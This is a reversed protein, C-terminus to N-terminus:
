RILHIMSQKLIQNNCGEKKELIYYYVGEALRRGDSSDGNWVFPYSLERVVNGWRNFIVVKNIHNLNDLPQFFDNIGDENPTFINVMENSYSGSSVSAAGPVGKLDLEQCIYKYSGDVPCIQIPGDASFGIISSYGDDFVAAGECTPLTLNIPSVGLIQNFTDNLEIKVFPTVMYLNRDVLVLDGSAQYGIDGILISSANNTNISYLKTQFEALLITDNVGVLSVPGIGTNGVLLISADNTDISFLQGNTIGWLNGNSTFAIDGFSANTSGIFDKSCNIFDICYLDGGSITLYIKQQSFINASVLLLLGAIFIKM